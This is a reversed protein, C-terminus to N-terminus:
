YLLIINFGTEGARRKRCRRTTQLNKVPGARQTQVTAEDPIFMPTRNDTVEIENEQNKEQLNNEEEEHLNHNSEETDSSTESSTSNTCNGEKENPLEYISENYQDKNQM